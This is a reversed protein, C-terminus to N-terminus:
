VPEVRLSATGPVGAADVWHLDVHDTDEYLGIGATAMLFWGLVGTRRAWRLDRAFVIRGDERVYDAGEAQEDGNVYVTLSGSAGAPLLVVRGVGTSKGM